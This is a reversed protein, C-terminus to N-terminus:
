TLISIIPIRPILFSDAADLRQLGRYIAYYWLLPKEHQQACSVQKVLRRAQSLAPLLLSALIAIIAVVVLLEILTFKRFYMVTDEIM